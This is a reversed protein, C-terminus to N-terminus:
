VRPRPRILPVTATAKELVQAEREAWLARVAPFVPSFASQAPDLLPNSFLFSPTWEGLDSFSNTVRDADLGRVDLRAVSGEEHVELAYQVPPHDIGVVSRRCTKVIYGQSSLIHCMMDLWDPPSILYAERDNFADRVAHAHQLFEAISQAQPM